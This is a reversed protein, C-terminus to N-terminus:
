AAHVHEVRRRRDYPSAQVARARDRLDDDVDGVHEILVGPLYRARHELEDTTEPPLPQELAHPDRGNLHLRNLRARSGRGPAPPDESAARITATRADLWDAIADNTAPANTHLMFAHGAGPVVYLTKDSALAFHLLESQGFRAPFLEDDEALVLMVPVQVLPLLFRSPQLSISFIEGSPTPNALANDLAIVDPDSMSTYFDAARTAPGSEFYVYDDQLAHVNDGPVWQRLLWQNNVFPEHTYGTAILVDALGPYLGATLEVIETGASHGILGVHEFRAPSAAQYTGGRLQRAIQGTMEAYGEVTLTYGNPHDPAGEGASDGYGLKDIALLAYGREALSQAVSYTEPELPFDWAWKGYSLGHVALLVSSSCGAPRILTGTVTYVTLPDLPNTVLFSVTERTITM